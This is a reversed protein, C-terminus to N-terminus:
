ALMPCLERNHLCTGGPRSSLPWLGVVIGALCTADWLMWFNAAASPRATSQVEGVTHIGSFCASGHKSMSICSVQQPHVTCRSEPVRQKVPWLVRQALLDDRFCVYLVGGKQRTEASRFRHVGLAAAVHIHKGLAAANQCNCSGCNPWM